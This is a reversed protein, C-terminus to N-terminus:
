NREQMVVRNIADKEFVFVPVVVNEFNYMKKLEELYM